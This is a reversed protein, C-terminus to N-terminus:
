LWARQSTGTAAALEARRRCDRGTEIVVFAEFREDHQEYRYCRISQEHEVHEPQRMCLGQREVGSPLAPSVGSFQAPSFFRCTACTLDPPPAASLWTAAEIAEELSLRGAAIQELIESLEITEM